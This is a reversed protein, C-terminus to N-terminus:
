ARLPQLRNRDAKEWDARSFATGKGTGVPTSEMEPILQPGRGLPPEGVRERGRVSHAGDKNGREKSPCLRGQAFGFPRPSQSKGCGRHSM